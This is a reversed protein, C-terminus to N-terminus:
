GAVFNVITNGVSQKLPNLAVLGDSNSLPWTAVPELLEVPSVSGGKRAGLEPHPDAAGATLPILPTTRPVMRSFALPRWHPPRKKLLRAALPEPSPTAAQGEYYWRLTRGCTVSAILEQDTNVTRQYLAGIEQLSFGEEQLSFGECPAVTAEPAAVYHWIKGAQLRLVPRTFNSAM